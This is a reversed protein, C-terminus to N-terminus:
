GNARLHGVCFSTSKAPAAKCAMGKKTIGQCDTFKEPTFSYNDAPIGRGANPDLRPSLVAGKRDAWYEQETMGKVM